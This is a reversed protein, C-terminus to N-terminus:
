RGQDPAGASGSIAAVAQARRAEEAEERDLLDIYEIRRSVWWCMLATLSCTIAITYALRQGHWLTGVWHGFRVAMVLAKGGTRELEFDFRKGTTAQYVLEENDVDPAAAYILVAASWGIVFIAAAALLIRRPLPLHKFPM